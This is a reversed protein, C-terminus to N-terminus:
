LEGIRGTNKLPDCIVAQVGEFLDKGPQEVPDLLGHFPVEYVLCVSGMAQKPGMYAEKATPKMEISSGEVEELVYDEEQVDIM